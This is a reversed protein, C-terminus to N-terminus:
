AEVFELTHGKSWTITNIHHLATRKCWSTRDRHILYAVFGDPYTIKIQYRM